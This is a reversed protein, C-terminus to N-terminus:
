RGRDHENDDSMATTEASVPPLTVEPPLRDHQGGRLENPVVDCLKLSSPRLPPSIWAGHVCPVRAHQDEKCSTRGHWPSIGLTAAYM